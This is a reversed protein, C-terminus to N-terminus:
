SEQTWAATAAAANEKYPFRDISSLRFLLHRSEGIVERALFLGLFVLFLLLGPVPTHFPKPFGVQQRIAVGDGAPVLRVGEGVFLWSSEAVERRELAKEPFNVLQGSARVKAETVLSAAHAAIVTHVIDFLHAKRISTSEVDCNIRSWATFPMVFRCIDGESIFHKSFVTRFSDHREASMGAIRVGIDQLRNCFFCDRECFILYFSIIRDYGNPVFRFRFVYVLPGIRNSVPKDVIHNGARERLNKSCEEQSYHGPQKQMEEVYLDVELGYEFGQVTRAGLSFSAILCDGSWNRHGVVGVLLDSQCDNRGRTTNGELFVQGALVAEVGAGCPVLPFAARRKRFSPFVVVMVFM